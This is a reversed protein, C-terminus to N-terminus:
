SLWQATMQSCAMLLNCLRVGLLRVIHDSRLRNLQQTVLVHAATADSDPRIVVAPEQWCQVSHVDLNDEGSFLENQSTRVIPPCNGLDWMTDLKGQQQDLEEVPM